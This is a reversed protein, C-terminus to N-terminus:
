NNAEISDLNEELDVPRTPDYRYISKLSDIIRETDVPVKHFKGGRMCLSEWYGESERGFHTLPMLEKMAVDNELKSMAIADNFWLLNGERDFHVLKGCIEHVQEGENYDVSGLSGPLQPMFSYPENALELGIWFTEKEGHTEDRIINKLPGPVNLMCVALMGILHRRKDIVVVGAELEYMTKAQLMRLNRVRESHPEPFLDLIWKSKEYQGPFLSRDKFFLAGDRWYEPDTFLTSPNQLFVTDADMLIVDTFDSALVAFPKSDWTEMPLDFYDNLNKVKVGHFSGLFNGNTANLDKKGYHWIEVPLTCNLFRLARITHVAFPFYHNGTTMVIGPRQAGFMRMAMERVTGHSQKNIFPFLQKELLVQLEGVQNRPVHSFIEGFLRIRRAHEKFDASDLPEIIRAHAYNVLSYRDRADFYCVHSSNRPVYQLSSVIRPNGSNASRPSSILRYIFAILLLFIVVFLIPLRLQRNIMYNSM